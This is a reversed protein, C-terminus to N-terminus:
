MWQQYTKARPAELSRTLALFWLSSVVEKLRTTNDASQRCNTFGPLSLFLVAPAPGNRRMFVEATNTLGPPSRSVELVPEFIYCLDIRCSKQGNRFM